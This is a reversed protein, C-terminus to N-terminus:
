LPYEEGNGGLRVVDLGFYGRQHRVLPRGSGPLTVAVRVTFVEHDGATAGSVTECWLAAAGEVAPVDWGPPAPITDIGVDAFKDAARSSRGAREALEAQGDTLISISLRGSARVARATRSDRILPVALQSPDISVYGVTATACALGAADAAAVIVVPM